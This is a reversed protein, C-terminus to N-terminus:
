MYSAEKKMQTKKTRWERKVDLGWAQHCPYISDQVSVLITSYHLVSDIIVFFVPYSMNISRKNPIKNASTSLAMAIIRKRVFILCNTVLHFVLVWYTSRNKKNEIKNKTKCKYNKIPKKVEVFSRFLGHTQTLVKSM